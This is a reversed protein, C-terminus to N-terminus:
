ALTARQFARLALGVTLAAFGALVAISLLAM